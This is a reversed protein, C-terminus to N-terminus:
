QCSDEEDRVPFTIVFQTGCTTIIDVSGRLQHSTIFDVLYLGLTQHSRIIEPSIGIGNDSIKLIIHSEERKLDISITCPRGRENEGSFEPPFAYKLANTIIENVVLGCPVITDLSLWGQDICFLFEIDQRKMFIQILYQVMNQIYKQVPIQSINKVQHLSEYVLAMSRIRAELDQYHSRDNESPLSAMQLNILSIITSLNNKVRHHIERLLMEKEALSSKLIEERERFVDDACIMGTVDQFVCHAQWFSGHPDYWINGTLSMLIIEANKKQVPFVTDHVEGKKMLLSFQERFLMKKDLPLFDAFWRGIVEDREYGLMKLWKKNVENIRGDADLLLYPVPAELFLLRYREEGKRPDAEVPIMDAIDSVVLGVQFTGNSTEMRVGDARIQIMSGDGQKICILCTQKENQELVHQFFQDWVDLSDPSVYRRFTDLILDKIGIGLLSAGSLNVQTICAKESLIFYGSPAFDYLDLYRDRSEESEGRTKKLEDNQIELEILHVQLEHIIEGPTKTSMDNFRDSSRALREEATNHLWRTVRTMEPKTQQIAM